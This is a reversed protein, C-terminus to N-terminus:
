STIPQLSFAPLYLKRNTYILVKTEDSNFAYGQMQKLDEHGAKKLHVLTDVANGDKYRYKVVFQSQELTTYHKGDDMSRLGKVSTPQFTHAEGCTLWRLRKIGESDSDQAVVSQMALSFMLVLLFLRKMM